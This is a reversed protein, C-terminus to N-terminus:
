RAGTIPRGLATELWRRLRDTHSGDWYYRGCGPCHRVPAAAARVDAPIAAAAFAPDAAQLPHNCVTCRTFPDSAASAREAVWRVAAHADLPLTLIPVHLAGRPRRFSTTLVGRGTADARAILDALPAAGGPEVDFGLVRLRRAVRELASGSIWGSTELPGRENPESLTEM